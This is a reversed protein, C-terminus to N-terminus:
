PRTYWKQMAVAVPGVEQKELFVCVPNRHKKELFPKLQREKGPVTQAIWAHRPDFCEQGSALVGNRAVFVREITNAAGFIEMHRLYNKYHRGQPDLSVDSCGNNAALIKWPRKGFQWWKPQRAEVGLLWLASAGDRPVPLDFWVDLGQLEAYAAKADDFVLESSGPAYFANTARNEMIVPVPREGSLKQCLTVLSRAWQWRELNFFDAWSCDFGGGGFDFGIYLRLGAPKNTTIQKVRERLYDEMAALTNTAPWLRIYVAVENTLKSWENYLPGLQMADDEPQNIHILPIVPTM